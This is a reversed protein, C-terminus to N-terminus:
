PAGAPCVAAILPRDADARVGALDVGAPVLEPVPPALSPDRESWRAILADLDEGRHLLRGDDEIVLALAEGRHSVSTVTAFGVEAPADAPRVPVTPAKLKHLEWTTADALALAAAAAAEAAEGSLGRRIARWVERKSRLSRRAAERAAPTATWLYGRTATFRHGSWGAPPAQSEKLFHLALYRM